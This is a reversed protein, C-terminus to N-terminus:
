PFGVIKRECECFNKWRRAIKGRLSGSGLVRLRRNMQYAKEALVTLLRRTLAAGFDGAFLPPSLRLGASKTLARASIDYPQDLLFYVEGFVEGAEDIDTLFIERGSLTDQRIGVAGSILLFTGRPRDGEIFVAEGEGWREYVVGPSSLFAMREERTMGQGLVSAGLAFAADERWIKQGTGLNNMAMAGLIDARAPNDVFSIWKDGHLDRGKPIVGDRFSVDGVKAFFM